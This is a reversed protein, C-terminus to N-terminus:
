FLTLLRCNTSRQLAAHLRLHGCTGALHGDSCAHEAPSTRPRVSVGHYRRLEPYYFAADIEPGIHGNGLWAMTHEYGEARRLDLDEWRPKRLAVFAHQSSGPWLTRIKAEGTQGNKYWSKGSTLLVFCIGAHPSIGHLPWVKSTRQIRKQCALSPPM